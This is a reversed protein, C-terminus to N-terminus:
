AKREAVMPPPAAVGLKSRDLIELEVEARIKGYQQRSQQVLQEALGPTPSALPLTQMTFPKSATNDILLKVIAEYKEINTVDYQSFTPAFAQAFIEADEVGVRFAAITGVNGFVADRIKTDQKEVLQGVYQHAITLNLRYKRAESLITAVSDTVFNQFEDVYLFFDKRQEQPLSARRLAAMQLKAVIILGLLNANVEGTAGKALNVLLIKGENMINQFNFGSKSQGIVNRMMSNEVFRGVKSILYGLMESKHFDSTKAMEKEWFSRVIPDTVKAVKAKQFAPDTFMRPIEVITGPNERDAMLTLMVNRMNHEFMPGIVEPPFLKMFIAIMEQVAFDQADPTEADLMNLGVPFEVDSPNFHIVDKWRHEPIRSLIDMILDGHPDVVCVGDGNAIDQIAMQAMLVSKGVGSKGIVYVHRRRDERGIRIQTEEGRFHSVGMLVGQKPANTPPPASRSMVWAINPTETSPLPLHWLSAVEEVSLVSSRGGDFARYIFDHILRDKKFPDKREFGNGTDFANYQGFADQINKLRILATQQNGSSVVIRVNVDLGAKSNKEQVREVLAEQAPNLQKPMEPMADKKKGTSFFMGFIEKVINKAMSNSVNGGSRLSHITSTARSHWRPNSSRCVYQIVAGEEPNLKSLANTLGSLPDVDMRRYSLIPLVTNKKLRLSAAAVHSTPRFPNYETTAEIEASPYQAHLQQEMFERMPEPVIIYFRIEGRDAVIELTFHDNRGKGLTNYWRQARMNGLFSLFSEGVSIQEQLQQIRSAGQGSEEEQQEKPLMVQLCIHHVPPASRKRLRLVFVVSGAVALLGIICLLIYFLLPM